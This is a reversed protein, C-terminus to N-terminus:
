LGRPSCPHAPPVERKFDRWEKWAREFAERAGHSVGVRDLYEEVARRSRADVPWADDQKVDRAFDGVPDNRKAQRLMWRTFGSLTVPPAKIAMDFCANLSGAGSQVAVYGARLAAVIFEGNAVYEGIGLVPVKRAIGKVRRTVGEHDGREARHKWSYSTFAEDISRRHECNAKIWAVLKAVIAARPLEEADAQEAPALRVGSMNVDRETLCRNIM